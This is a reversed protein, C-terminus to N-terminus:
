RHGVHYGNLRHPPANCNSTTVGKNNTCYNITTVASPKLPPFKSPPTPPQPGLISLLVPMWVLGHAAGLAIIFVYMRFYFVQFIQSRAFALVSVGVIKTLTIGSLVSSGTEALAVVMRHNPDPHDVQAFAFVLHSLFEVFIGVSMIINVLSVANLSVGFWYTCGAMNILLVILGVAVIMSSYFDFGSFVLMVLFVTAVCIFVSSAAEQFVTLYQEYYVYFVSYPFVEVTSSNMPRNLNIEKTINDAIERAHELAKYYDRSTRLITHYTMFYSAGVSPQTANTAPIVNVANGYAAHGAKPCSASPIDELFFPLYTNFSDPTPRLGDDSIEILCNQCDSTDDSSPCFSGDDHIRCCPVDVDNEGMNFVSWSMYDDIWSSAPRAISSRNAVRSAMYLQMVLSDRGCDASGCVKNQQELSQSFDLGPKLVFYVPPGVSLYTGLDHFYEMLYSDQPMSLEQDLGVQVSSIFPMSTLSWFAFVIIVFAKVPRKALLPGHCDRMYRVLLGEKRGPSAPAKMKVCCLVDVRNDEQRAHDLSLVALFCTIQLLFDVTLALGAYLAFARVAPMPSLAGLFFCAAESGTSILLSPAVQGLVRGLQEPGTETPLKEARQLGSVLLFMNDVGVALVLFPIVEIIILTAPVGILAYVGVSATVSTLVILVGCLGLTVKSDVPLRSCGSVHGISFVIYTFMLVYSVLVTLVDGQSERELEDQISREASFSISVLPHTVNRVYALFAKEWDLAQANDSKNLHNNVVFTIVLATANHYAPNVGLDTSQNALFGGLSTYPFVPGGYTGLCPLGVSSEEPNVPNRFCADLHNLYTVNYGLADVDEIDLNSPNNQFYNLVSQITCNENVPALPKFCIDSLSTGNDGLIENEIYNQIDAVAKLFEKNFVPGWVKVGDPTLQEVPDLGVPRIIIMETRYFPEFHEDFYQKELRSRSTPAAWLEVPDTTVVLQRVGCSLGLAVLVSAAIVKWPHRGVGTGWKVFFLRIGDSIRHGLRGPCRCHVYLEGSPVKEFINCLLVISWVLVVSLGLAGYIIERQLLSFGESPPEPPVPCARQCDMCSCERSGNSPKQDCPVIPRSFSNDQTGNVFNYKITFPAVGNSTSGMFEFWRQPTCYYSGWPGCMISMVKENTSPMSVDKCSDFVGDAFSESMSFDLETIVTKNTDPATATTGVSMYNSHDPACTLYCYALKFNRLCAPCRQLLAVGAATQTQLSLVQERSCCTSVSGNHVGIEHVLEPCVAALVPTMEPPLPKPPGSYPCNSPLSTAPNQGCQGYWVCHGGDQAIVPALTALTWILFMSCAFYLRM